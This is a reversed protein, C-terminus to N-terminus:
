GNRIYQMKAVRAKGLAHISEDALVPAAFGFIAAITLLMSRMVDLAYRGWGDTLGNSRLRRDPRPTWKISRPEADAHAAGDATVETLRSPM